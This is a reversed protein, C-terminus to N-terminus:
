PVIVVNGSEGHHRFCDVLMTRKGAAFQDM